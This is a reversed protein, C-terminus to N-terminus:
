SKGWAKLKPPISTEERNREYIESGHGRPNEVSPNAKKQDKNKRQQELNKEEEPKQRRLLGVQQDEAPQHPMGRKLAEFKSPKQNCPIAAVPFRASRSVSPTAM